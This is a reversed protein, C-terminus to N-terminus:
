VPRPDYPTANFGVYRNNKRHVFGNPGANYYTVRRIGFPDIYGYSGVRNSGGSNDEEHYQRPLFYKFGNNTLSVGDYEQYKDTDIRDRFSPRYYNQPPEILDRNFLAQTNYNPNRTTTEIIPRATTSALPIVDYRRPPLLDNSM